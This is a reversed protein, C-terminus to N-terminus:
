ELASKWNPAQIDAFHKFGVLGRKKEVSDFLLDYLTDNNFAEKLNKYKTGRYVEDILTAQGLYRAGVVWNSYLMELISAQKHTM